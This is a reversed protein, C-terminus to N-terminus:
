RTRRPKAVALRVTTAGAYNSRAIDAFRHRWAGPGAAQAFNANFSLWKYAEALDLPLM